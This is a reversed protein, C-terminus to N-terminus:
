DIAAASGSGAFSLNFHSHTNPNWATIHPSAKFREGPGRSGRRTSDM